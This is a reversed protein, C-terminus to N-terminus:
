NFDMRAVLKAVLIPMENVGPKKEMDATANGVENLVLQIHNTDQGSFSSNNKEAAEYISKFFISSEYLEPYEEKMDAPPSDITLEWVFGKKAKSISKGLIGVGSLERLHFMVDDACVLIKDKVFTVIEKTSVPGGYEDIAMRTLYYTMLPM